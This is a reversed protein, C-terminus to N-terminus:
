MPLTKRSTMVTPIVFPVQSPMWNTLITLGGSVQHVMQFFFEYTKISTVAAGLRGFVGLRADAQQALQGIQRTLAPTGIVDFASDFGMGSPVDFADNVTPNGGRIAMRTPIGHDELYNIYLM